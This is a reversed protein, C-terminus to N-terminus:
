LKKAEIRSKGKGSVRKQHIYLLLTEGERINGGAPPPLKMSGEGKVPSPHTLTIDEPQGRSGKPPVKEHGQIV